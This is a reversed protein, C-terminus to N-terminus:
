TVGPWEQAWEATGKVPWVAMQLIGWEGDQNGKLEKAGLYQVGPPM